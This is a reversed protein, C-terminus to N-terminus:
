KLLVPPKPLVALMAQETSNNAIKKMVLANESNKDRITYAYNVPDKKFLRLNLELEVAANRKV